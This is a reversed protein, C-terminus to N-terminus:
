PRPFIRGRLWQGIFLGGVAGLSPWLPGFMFDLASTSTLMDPNRGQWWDIYLIMAIPVTLLAVCGVKMQRFGFGVLVGALFGFFLAGEITLLANL